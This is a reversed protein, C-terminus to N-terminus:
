EPLSWFLRMTKIHHKIAILCGYYGSFKGRQFDDNGKELEDNLKEFEDTSTRIIEADLYKKFSEYDIMYDLRRASERM